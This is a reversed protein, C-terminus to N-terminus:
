PLDRPLDQNLSREEACCKNRFEVERRTKLVNSEQEHSRKSRIRVLFMLVNIVKLYINEIKISISLNSSRRSAPILTLIYHSMRRKRGKQYKQSKRHRRIIFQPEAMLNRPRTPRRRGRVRIDSWWTLGYIQIERRKLM